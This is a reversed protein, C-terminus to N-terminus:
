HLTKYCFWKQIRLEDKFIELNGLDYNPQQYFM